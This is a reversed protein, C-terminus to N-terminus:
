YIISLYYFLYIYIPYVTWLFIGMIGNDKGPLRDEFPIYYKGIERDMKIPKRKFRAKSYSLSKKLEQLNQINSLYVQNNKNRSSNSFSSM